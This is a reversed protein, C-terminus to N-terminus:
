RDAEVADQRAREVDVTTRRQEALLVLLREREAAATAVQEEAAVQAAQAAALADDAATATSEALALADQTRAALTRSVLDAARFRQVAREAQSGLREVAETRALLDEFGDASLFAGLADMAGGSRYAEMALAGLGGRAAELEAQAALERDAADQAAQRAEDRAVTAAAYDEA